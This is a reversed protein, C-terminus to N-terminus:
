PVPQVGSMVALSLDRFNCLGVYWKLRTRWADEPLSQGKPLYEAANRWWRRAAATMM